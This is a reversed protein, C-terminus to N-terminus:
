SAVSSQPFTVSNEVVNVTEGLLLNRGRQDLLVSGLLVRALGPDQGASRVIAVRANGVM